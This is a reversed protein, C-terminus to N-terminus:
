NPSSVVVIRAMMGGDEHELIHCHYVFEGLQTFPIQEIVATSACTGNRWQPITCVGNQNNVVQNAITANPVAVSLPFNDQVVNGADPGVKEIFRTQHLHFNHNETSLQVLEWTETAPMQGQALPLCIVTVNPDFGALGTTTPFGPPKAAANNEDVDVSPYHTGPVVNGNQDVEEYALAFTNNIATDSFGFFIRRHHGAPLAKCGSPLPAAKATPNASVFMGGPRMLGSDSAVVANATFQRQGTQNFLVKAMNVSPWADGSGMNLGVMTLTASAGAPPPAVAGNANRYTVFMDVRSSPMMVWEDVCVPVTTIVTVNPCPVVHFKGGAMAVMSSMPTNQPLTVATGDIALLQVIMPQQTQDNILQLNWSLSGAGTAIRWIEGDPKTIPITPYQIGNITFYWVGGTYDNSGSNVGPCSGNRPADGAVPFQNCFASTTHAYVEGDAVAVPGAGGNFDIAPNAALVEIEKLMLYRVNADPWPTTNADGTVNDGIKGITLIGALGHSLQELAIGHVHAHYWLLSSPMNNVVPINFDIPGVVVDGMNHPSSQPNPTGNAPNFVQVFIDDGWTPNQRTAARAPTLLGHTHLNSPNLVDNPDDQAHLLKKPDFPPLMNTFHVKLTDGQTLALRTGGYDWVTGSGSPCSTQGSSTRNCIEYAWGQPNIKKGTTPSTFTITPIPKQKLNMLIDLTGNQSAFVPPEHFANQAGATGAGGALAVALSAAGVWRRISLQAGFLRRLSVNCTTPKSSM